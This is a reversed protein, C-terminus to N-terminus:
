SALRWELESGSGYKEGAVVSHLRLRGLADGCRKRILMAAIAYGYRPAQM